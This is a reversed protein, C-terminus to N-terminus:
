IELKKIADAQKEVTEIYTKATWVGGIALAIRELGMALAWFPVALLDRFKM